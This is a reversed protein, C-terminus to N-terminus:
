AVGGRASGAAHHADGPMALLAKLTEGGTAGSAGLMVVSLAKAM